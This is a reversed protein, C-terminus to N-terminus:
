VFQWQSNLAGVQENHDSERTDAPNGALPCGANVSFAKM